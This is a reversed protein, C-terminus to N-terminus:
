NRNVFFDDQDIADETTTAFSREIRTPKKYFRGGVRFGGGISAAEVDGDGEGDGDLTGEDNSPSARRFHPSLQGGFPPRYEDGEDLSSDAM